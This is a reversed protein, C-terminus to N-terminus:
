YVELMKVTFGCSIAGVWFAGLPTLLNNLDLACGLCAGIVLPMVSIATRM